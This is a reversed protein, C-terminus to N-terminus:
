EGIEMLAQGSSVAITIRAITLTEGGGLDAVDGVRLWTDVACRVRRAGLTGALYSIGRVTRTKGSPATVESAGDLSLSASQGGADYRLGNLTARALEELQEGGFPLRVGRRVVLDGEARAEVATLTASTAGPSIVSLAVGTGTARMVFSSLPLELDPEGTLFLRYLDPQPPGIYERLWAPVAVTLAMALAPVHSYYDGIWTPIALAVPIALPPVADIEAVAICYAALTSGEDDRLVPTSGWVETGFASATSYAVVRTGAACYVVDDTDIAMDRIQSTWYLVPPQTELVSLDATAYKYLHSYNGYSVAMGVILDGASDLCLAAASVSTGYPSDAYAVWNGDTDYKALIYENNFIGGLYVADDTALLAYIYCSTWSANLVISWQVTGSSNYKTLNVSGSPSVATMGSTYVNGASDVAIRLRYGDWFNTRCEGHDASWQLVGTSSYKRTTYFGVRSGSTWVLGAANVPEGVVYVNGTADLAVDHCAAGHNAQWYVLGNPNYRRITWQPYAYNTYIPSPFTAPQDDYGTTGSYATNVTCVVLDGVHDLAIGTIASLFYGHNPAHHGHPYPNAASDYKHIAWDHGTHDVFSQSGTVILPRAAM